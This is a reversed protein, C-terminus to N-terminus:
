HAKEDLALSKLRKRKLDIAAILTSFADAFLRVGQDLLQDTVERMDVGVAALQRITDAAADAGSDVTRKVHGHDKFADVTAPPMTNVTDPGILEEVYLVDSYAPNKTGTSAWLPRQLQAGRAALAQFRGVNPGSKFHSLFAQYALRANAIAAKGLLPKAQASVEPKDKMLQELRKDVNSDVRSVFFSAVSAISSLDGKRRELGKLYAEIVQQYADIAFILTVNVNVGESILEEIAPIGAPTAPIKIMVNPRDIEKHLRRAEAISGKSDNALTPSVEMSIFGDHRNTREYVPRLVDAAHQIDQVAVREFIHDPHMAHISEIQEDYE